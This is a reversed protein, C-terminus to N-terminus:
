VIGEDIMALTGLVKVKVISGRSQLKRGIEVVDVPDGDGKCRSNFYMTPQRASGTITRTSTGM